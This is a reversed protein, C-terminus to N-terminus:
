FGGYPAAIGPGIPEGANTRTLVKPSPPVQDDSDDTRHKRVNMTLSPTADIDLGASISEAYSILSSESRDNLWQGDKEGLRSEDINVIVDILHGRAAPSLPRALYNSSM